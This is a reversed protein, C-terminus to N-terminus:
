EGDGSETEKDIARKRLYGNIVGMESGHSIHIHPLEGTAQKFATDPDRLFKQLERCLMFGEARGRDYAYHEEMGFLNQFANFVKQQEKTLTVCFKDVNDELFTELEFLQPIVSKDMIGMDSLTEGSALKWWLSKLM